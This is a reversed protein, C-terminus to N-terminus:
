SLLQAKGIFDRKGIEVGNHRLIDYATTAHFFFNPMAFSLLYGQGNFKMTRSSTEFITEREASGEFRSADVASLMDLGRAVLEKLEAFSAPATSSDLREGGALKAVAETSHRVALQVQRYMPFMDPFLRANLLVAPDIKRAECHTAARDLVGSLAALIQSFVPVSVSYMSLSM